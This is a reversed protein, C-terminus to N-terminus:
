IENGYSVPSLLMEKAKTQNKEGVGRKVLTCFAFLLMMIAEKKRRQYEYTCTGMSLILRQIVFYILKRSVVLLGHIYLIYCPALVHM